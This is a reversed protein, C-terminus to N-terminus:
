LEKIPFDSYGNLFERLNMPKKGEMQVLKGPLFKIVKGNWKTWVNPWPYFARVLRNLMQQKPTNAIDFYGDEKKIIKTFTAQTHAQEKPAIKGSTFDEILNILINAARHFVKTHLIESTDDEAIDFEEQYLIPGHDMEPDMKIFTLGSTKEGNLIATQIPSAGRYKPLLSPHVNIAGYKPIDLIEQPIIKGYASVIFLDPKLKKLDTILQTDEKLRKPTFIFPLNHTIAFHKVPTPTLVKKRGLIQDPTTVVGLLNFEGGLKELIPLNFDPTGFFIITLNNM